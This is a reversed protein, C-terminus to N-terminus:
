SVFNWLVKQGSVLNPIHSTVPSYPAEAKCQTVYFSIIEYELSDVDYGQTILTQLVALDPANLIIDESYMTKNTSAPMVDNVLAQDSNGVYEKPYCFDSNM